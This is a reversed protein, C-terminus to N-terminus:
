ILFEDRIKCIEKCLEHFHDHRVLAENIAKVADVSDSEVRLHQIGNDSAMRMGYWIAWLEAVLVNIVTVLGEQILKSLIV